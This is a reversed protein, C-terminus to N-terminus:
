IDREEGPRASPVLDLLAGWRSDRVVRDCQCVSENLDAGCTPCIGKCGQRCVPQMPVNLAAYQGVAETLDLVHGEDIAMSEGTDVLERMDAGTNLDRLPLAEEEVGLRITQRYEQLCRSCICLADTDLVASVWVGKDTRLLKVKGSVRRADVGDMSPLVEEVDYERVAGSPERM